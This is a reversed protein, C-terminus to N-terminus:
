GADRRLRARLRKYGAPVLALLGLLCFALILDPTLVASLSLEDAGELVTGLSRGVNAFVFTGPIIGIFTALAFIRVPVGFFAPAINVLFFPFVPVLRLFLLYSFANEAFGRELRLMRRGFRARVLDLFALRVALFVAVAGATAGIVVWATGLLAGFLFGGVITVLSAIPLSFAAVAAYFLIFAVVALIPNAGTWGTLAARHAKLMQFLAQQDPVLYLFAALGGALLVLPLLRWYRSRRAPRPVAVAPDPAPEANADTGGPCTRSSHAPLDPAPGGKAQGGM